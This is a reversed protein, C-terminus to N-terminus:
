RSAACRATCPTQKTTSQSAELLVRERWERRKVVGGDQLFLDKLSEDNLTIQYQAM